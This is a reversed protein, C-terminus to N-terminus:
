CKHTERTNTVIYFISAHHQTPPQIHIRTKQMFPPHINQSANGAHAKGEINLLKDFPFIGDERISTPYSKARIQETRKQEKVLVHLSLSITRCGNSKVKSPTTYFINQYNKTFYVRFIESEIYSPRDDKLTKLYELHRGLHGGTYLHVLFPKKFQQYKLRKHPHFLTM